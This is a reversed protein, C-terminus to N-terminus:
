GEKATNHRWNLAGILLLLVEVLLLSFVSVAAQVQGSTTPLQYLWVPFPKTYLLISSITYEGMVLAFCLFSANLLATRLSPVLVRALVSSWGAGLNRSAEVLTRVDISRIGADISRYVFPMALMVYLLALVFPHGPGRLYTVVTYVVSGTDKGVWSFTDDVGVVLVIPPFVLPLLSIVEVLPRVRPFRLHLLVQTPVMLALTFVITVIAIELSYVLATTFGVQGNPPQNFIARYASFTIGGHVHDQVTFSIAAILPGIFYIGCVALIVWRTVNSSAPRRRRRRPAKDEASGPLFDPVAATGYGALPGTTSM